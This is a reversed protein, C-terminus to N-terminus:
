EPLGPEAKANRAVEQEKAHDKLRSLPPDVRPIGPFLGHALQSLFRVPNENECTRHPPARALPGTGAFAPSNSIASSRNELPALQLNAKSIVAFWVCISSSDPL